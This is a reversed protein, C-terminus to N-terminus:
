DSGLMKHACNSSCLRGHPVSSVLSSIVPKRVLEERTSRTFLRSPGYRFNVFGLEWLRLVVSAKLVYVRLRRVSPVIMLLSFSCSAESVYWYGLNLSEGRRAVHVTESACTKTAKGLDGGSFCTCFDFGIQTCTTSLSLCSSACVAAARRLSNAEAGYAPALPQLYLKATCAIM